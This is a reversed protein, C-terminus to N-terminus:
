SMTCKFKIALLKLAATEKWLYPSLTTRDRQKKYWEKHSSGFFNRRYNQVQDLCAWPLSQDKRCRHEHSYVWAFYLEFSEVLCREGREERREGREIERQPTHTICFYISFLICCLNFALLCQDWVLAFFIQSSHESTKCSEKHIQGQYIRESAVVVIITFTHHDYSGARYPM